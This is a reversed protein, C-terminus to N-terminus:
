QLVDQGLILCKQWAPSRNRARASDDLPQDLCIVDFGHQAGYANWNAECTSRWHQLYRDGIALTVIAKTCNVLSRGGVYVTEM